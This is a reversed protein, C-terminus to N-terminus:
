ATTMESWTLSLVPFGMPGPVTERMTRKLLGMEAPPFDCSMPMSSTVAAASSFIRFWNGATILALPNPDSWTAIAYTNWVCVIREVATCSPANGYVFAAVVPLVPVTVPFVAVFANALYPTLGFTTRFLWMPSTMSVVIM